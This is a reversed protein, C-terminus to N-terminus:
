TWSGAVDDDRDERNIRVESVSTSEASEHKRKVERDKELKSDIIRKMKSKPPMM